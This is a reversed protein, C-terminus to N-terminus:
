DNEKEELEKIEADLKELKKVLIKREEKKKALDSAINIPMYM